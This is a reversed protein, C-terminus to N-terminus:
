TCLDLGRDILPGIDKKPALGSPDKAWIPDIDPWENLTRATGNVGYTTGGTTFTVADGDCSLTGSGVTLPWEDGFDARSVDLSSSAAVPKSSSDEPTSTFSKYAGCASLVLALVTPTILRRSRM